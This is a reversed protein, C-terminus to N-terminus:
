GVGRLAFWDAIWVFTARANEAAIRADNATAVNAELAGLFARWRPVTERGYGELWRAPHTLRPGLSRLLSQGGLLSGEVVYAVGFRHALTSLNPLESQRPIAALERDTLGRARLDSEIWRVKDARVSPEIAEPWPGAWLAPELPELWGLVAGLYRAYAAEGADSRAIELNEELARHDKATRARLTDLAPTSSVVRSPSASM